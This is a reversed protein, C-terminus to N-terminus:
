TWNSFNVNVLYQPHPFSHDTLLRRRFLAQFFTPPLHSPAPCCSVHLYFSSTNLLLPSFVFSYSPASAHPLLFFLAFRPSIYCHVLASFFPLHNPVPPQLPCAGSAVLIHPPLLSLGPVAASPCDALPPSPPEFILPRCTFPLPASAPLSLVVLLCAPTPSHACPPLRPHIRSPVFCQSSPLNNPAPCHTFCKKVVEPIRTQTQHSFESGFHTTTRIRTTFREFM